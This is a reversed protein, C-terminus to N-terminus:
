KSRRLRKWIAPVLFFFAACLAITIHGRVMARAVSIVILANILATTSPPKWIRRTPTIRSAPLGMPAAYPNETM